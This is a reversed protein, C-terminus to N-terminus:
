KSVHYLPYVYSCPIMPGQSCQSCQSSGWKCQRQFENQMRDSCMAVRKTNVTIVGKIWNKCRSSIPSFCINSGWTAMEECALLGTPNITDDNRGAFRDCSGEASAASSVASLWTAYETFFFREYFPLRQSMESLSTSHPQASKEGKKLICTVVSNDIHWDGETCTAQSHKVELFSLCHAFLIGSKFIYRCINTM